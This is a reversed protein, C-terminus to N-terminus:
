VCFWRYLSSSYRKYAIQDQLRVDLNRLYPAWYRKSINCYKLSYYYWRSNVLLFDPQPGQKRWEIRNWLIFLYRFSQLSFSIAIYIVTTKQIALDLAIVICISLSRKGQLWKPHYKLPLFIPVGKKGLITDNQKQNFLMQDIQNKGASGIRFWIM